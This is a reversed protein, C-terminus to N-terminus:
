NVTFNVVYTKQTPSATDKVVATFTYSGPPLPTTGMTRLTDNLCGAEAPAAKCSNALTQSSGLNTKGDLSLTSATILYQNADFAIPITVVMTRDLNIEVIDHPSGGLLRFIVPGANPVYLLADKASPDMTMRYEGTKAPDVFELIVNTGIGEIFRYRWQEFPYTDTIGGGEEPPRNYKGGNPHADIEDPPGYQIYIRGRDTKWGPVRNAGFRDNVYTMRRYFERKYANEPNGRLITPYEEPRAGTPATPDRHLWFQKIFQDREEDTRLSRFANREEATIIYSVEELWKRYPYPAPMANSNDQAMLAAYGRKNEIKGLMERVQDLAKWDTTKPLVAQARSVRPVPREATKISPSPAVPLVPVIPPDSQQPSQWAALALGCTVILIGASLMPTMVTRPGEPQALLRRIRKVLNGGTAAVATERMTWRNTALAALATAYEHADVSASVVLDDCCNERETRMVASIWWVAPHYFLLGEVVTQMLNVLYDSRRIHALEHLLIAEVQTTPLGALLGVPVLIVPRLHGIVAPVEAFCSELLTVSRTLRLRGHLDKLRECWKDSAGCVGIRRLRAAAMWSALCRLQFLLVGAMWLPALWPLLDAAEWSRIVVPVDDPSPSVAAPPIRVIARGPNHRPMLRYFTVGFGALLALMALCAAAYRVRSSRVVSLVVALSLAVAAGEWLSHLLTEGVAKAPASQVWMEIVNM